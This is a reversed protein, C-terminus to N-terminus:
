VILIFFYFTHRIVTLLPETISPTLICLFSLSDAPVLVCPQVLSPETISPHRDVSTISYLFEYSLNPLNPNHYIIIIHNQIGLLKLFNLLYQAMM